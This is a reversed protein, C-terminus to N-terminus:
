VNRGAPVEDRLDYEDRLREFADPHRRLIRDDTMPDYSAAVAALTVEDPVGPPEPVALPPREVGFFDCLRDLVMATARIKGQLSYGAIHPTAIDVLDLLERNIHPEGEWTDIVVPGVLGARIADVLAMTDVVPGRAANIVIPARRLSRFFSRDALHFTPCDGDRTLPTHFTIIDAQEAIDLLSNWRDGGEAKSRPPDCLMVRMGMARAWREVISGVYGVGVIGLTYQTMPRNILRALTAFVYQAVAPANCGPANVARIGSDACWRRDIHDFGITATGVFRVKSHALLAADCRTRTRVLLADADAVAAADIDDPALVRVDGLRALPERIFPIHSDAVFTLSTNQM